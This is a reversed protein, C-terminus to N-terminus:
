RIRVANGLSRHLGVVGTAAPNISKPDFFTLVDGGDGIFLKAVEGSADRVIVMDLKRGGTCTADSFSLRAGTGDVGFCQPEVTFTGTGTESTVVGLDNVDTFSFTVAGSADLTVEGYSAGNAPHVGSGCSASGLVANTGTSCSAPASPSAIHVEDWAAAVIYTGAMAAATYTGAPVDQKLVLGYSLHHREEVGPTSHAPDIDNTGSAVIAVNGDPSLALWVGEGSSFTFIGSSDTSISTFGPGGGAHTYTAANAFATTLAPDNIDVHSSFEINGLVSLDIWGFDGSVGLQNAVSGTVGSVIPYGLDAGYGNWAYVGAMDQAIGVKVGMIIETGENGGEMNVGILTNFDRSFAGWFAGTGGPETITLRNDASITYNLVAGGAGGAIIGCDTCGGSQDVRHRHEIGDTVITATGHGSADPVSFRLKFGWGSVYRTYRRVLAWDDETSPPILTGDPNRGLFSTNLAARYHMAWYDGGAFATAAPVVYSAVSVTPANLAFVGVDCLLTSATNFILNVRTTAGAAVDVSGVMLLPHADSGNSYWSTGGGAAATAFTLTVPAAAGLANDVLLPADTASCAGDLGSYLIENKLTFRIKGYTGVPINGSGFVSGPSTVLDIPVLTSTDFATVWAAGDYLETKYLGVKLHTPSSTTAQGIVSVAIALTLLFTWRIIRHLRANM